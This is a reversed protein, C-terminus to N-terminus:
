RDAMARPAVGQRECLALGCPTRGRPTRGGARCRGCSSHNEPRAQCGRSGGGGRRASWHGRDDRNRNDDARAALPRTWARYELSTTWTARGNTLRNNRYRVALACRTAFLADHCDNAASRIRHEYFLA